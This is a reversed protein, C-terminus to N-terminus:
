QCGPQGMQSGDIPGTREEIGGVRCSKRLAEFYATSDGRLTDGKRVFLTQGPLRLAPLPGRARSVTRWLAPRPSEGRLGDELSPM